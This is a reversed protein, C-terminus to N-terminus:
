QAQAYLCLLYPFIFFLNIPFPSCLRSDNPWNQYQFLSTGRCRVLFMRAHFHRMHVIGIYYWRCTHTMDAPFKIWNRFSFM